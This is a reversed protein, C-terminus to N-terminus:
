VWTHLHTHVSHIHTNHVSMHIHIHTYLYVLMYTHMCTCEHVYTHVDMHTHTHPSCTHIITHIHFDSSFKSFDIIEKRWLLGPPQFWCTLNVCCANKVKQAMKSVWGKLSWAAEYAAFTKHQQLAMIISPFLPLGCKGRQSTSSPYLCLLMAPVDPVVSIGCVAWVTIDLLPEM